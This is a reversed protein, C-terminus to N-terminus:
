GPSLSYGSQCKKYKKRPGKTISPHDRKLNSSSVVHSIVNAVSSVEESLQNEIQFPNCKEVTVTKTVPKLKRTTYKSWHSHEKTATQLGDTPWPELLACLTNVGNFM